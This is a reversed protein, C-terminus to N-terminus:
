TGGHRCSCRAELSGPTLLEIEYIKYLIEGAPDEIELRLRHAQTCAVGFQQLSGGSQQAEMWTSWVAPSNGSGEKALVRWSRPYKTDDFLVRVGCVLAASDFELELAVPPYQGTGAPVEAAILWSTEDNNDFANRSLAVEGFDNPCEITTGGSSIPCAPQAPGAVNTDDM